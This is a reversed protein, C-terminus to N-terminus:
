WMNLKKLDETLIEAFYKRGKDNLCNANIYLSHDHFRKDRFYNIFPIKYINVFEINERYFKNIFEESFESSEEVCAPMNIIVPKFKNELCLDIMKGLIFRTKKFVEILKESPECKKVDTLNFEKKWGAIQANATIEINKESIGEGRKIIKKIISKLAFIIFKPKFIIFGHKILFDKLKTYGNINTKDLFYYYKYNTEDNDYYEVCFGFLCVVIAVIAGTSINKKYQQLIKYDYSLPQPSLAFNFGKRDFYNYDFGHLAFTSGTNVIELNEPVGNIFKVTEKIITKELLKKFFIM